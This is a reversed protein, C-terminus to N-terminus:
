GYRDGDLRAELDKIEQQLREIEADKDELRAKLGDYAELSVGIKEPPFLEAIEENIEDLESM